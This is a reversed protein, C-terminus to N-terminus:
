FPGFRRGPARSMSRLNPQSAGSTWGAGFGGGLLSAGAGALNGLTNWIQGSARNRDMIADADADAMGTQAQYGLRGLESYAQPYLQARDGLVGAQRGAISESQANYPALRSLWNGYDQQALGTALRTTADIVNGGGLGGRAAARREALNNAEDLQFQFGPSAQFTSRARAQGEPGNLGLADAYLDAGRGAREGPLAFLNFAQDYYPEARGIGEEIYGRAQDFGQSYGARKRAAAEDANKSTFIDFLGM